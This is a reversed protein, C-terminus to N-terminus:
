DSFGDVSFAEAFCFSSPPSILLAVPITPPFWTRDDSLCPFFSPDHFWLGEILLFLPGPLLFFLFAVSLWPFRAFFFHTLTKVAVGAPVRTDLRCHPKSRIFSFVTRPPFPPLPPHPRWELFSATPKSQSAPDFSSVDRPEKARPFHSLVCLFV